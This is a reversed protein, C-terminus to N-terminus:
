SVILVASGFFDRPKVKGAFLEIVLRPQIIIPRPIVIGGDATKYGGIRHNRIGIIWLCKIPITISEVIGDVTDIRGAM